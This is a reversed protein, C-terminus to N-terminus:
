SGSIRNGETNIKPAANALSRQRELRPTATAAAASLAQEASQTAFSNTALTARLAMRTSRRSVIGTIEAVATTTPMKAKRRGGRKARIAAPTSTATPPKENAQSAQVM